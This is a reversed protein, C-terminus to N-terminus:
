RPSPLASPAPSPAFKEWFPRPMPFLSSPKPEPKRVKKPPIKYADRALTVAAKVRALDAAAAPDKAAAAEYLPLAFQQNELTFAPENKTRFEGAEVAKAAALSAVGHKKRLALIGDLQAQFARATAAASGGVWEPRAFPALLDAADKYRGQKTRVDALFIQGSADTPRLSHVLAIGREMLDYRGASWAPLQTLLDVGVALGEDIMVFAQFLFAIIVTGLPLVSTYTWDPAVDGRGTLHADYAMAALALVLYVAGFALSITHGQYMPGMLLLIGCLVWVVKHATGRVHAIHAYAVVAWIFRVLPAFMAGYVLHTSAGFILTVLAALGILLDTSAALSRVRGGLARALAAGALDGAILLVPLLALLCGVVRSESLTYSFAEPDETMADALAPWRILAFRLTMMWVGAAVLLAAARVSGRQLPSSGTSAEM